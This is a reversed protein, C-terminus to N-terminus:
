LEIELGDYSVEWGAAEVKAREPSNADLIPNTNNIHIYLRREIRADAFANLSGTPGNIALHGMRQGTKEGVGAKAMEDDEFVTGDFLLLQAGDLRTKLEPTVRACGPIYHAAAGGAGFLKLGVTDGQDSSFDENEDGTELFLAVKGPVAYMEVTLMPRGEADCIETPEDMALEIRRVYAPDLVKFIPNADLAALVQRGAYVNFRQRERLSLLGAIHDVDANTLVVAKIPSDRLSSAPDPQLDTDREIQQRIDPSANILVWGSGSSAAISSQLRVGVNADGARARRSYTYNCNWQPV